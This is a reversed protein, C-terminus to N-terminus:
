GNAAGYDHCQRQDALATLTSPTNLLIPSHLTQNNMAGQHVSHSASALLTLGTQAPHLLLRTAGEQHSKKWTSRGLAGEAQDDEM